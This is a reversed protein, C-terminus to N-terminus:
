GKIKSLKAGSTPQNAKPKNVPLRAIAVSALREQDASETYLSVMALTKHGTIAQIEHPSCGADALRAAALKRLGHVGLPPLGIRQLAIPLMHSLHQGVWPRGSQNTLIITSVPSKRWEDLEAQLEPHVPVRLRVGTKQQTLRFAQGDYASWPLVILDGRRQGTYAAMAVVRRLHEPLHHMAHEAEAWTWAQLHGGPLPKLRSAPSHSIWERDVAWGFLTSATRLFGTAAGNGRTSAIADRVDMLIRRTINAVPEAQMREIDKLYVTYTRQTQEALGIWEPSLRYAITLAGITDPAFRSVKPKRLDYRYEKITGDALRKKVVRPKRSSPKFQPM